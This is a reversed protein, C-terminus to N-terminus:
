PLVGLEDIAQRFRADNNLVENMAEMRENLYEDDVMAGFQQELLDYIKGTLGGLAFRERPLAASTLQVGQVACMLEIALVYRVNTIIKALKRASFGGMSVHDEQNGSSTISDVSSPHALVKNESVLAAATYQAIMFGSNLGRKDKNAGSLEGPLGYSLDDNVLAFIRRESINAIEAMAISLADLPIALPQGHFNGGSVALYGGAGDDVVVPNDTVANMERELVAKAYAFAEKSAGHVQPICRFSYRDQVRFVYSIDTSWLTRLRESTRAVGNHYPEEAAKHYTGRATQARKDPDAYLERSKDAMAIVRASGATARRLNEATLIQGKNERAGNLRADFADLEGLTAELSLAGGADAVKLLHDADYLALVAVGLIFTAGNTLAMAEKAQLDITTFPSSSGPVSFQTVKVRNRARFDPLAEYQELTITRGDEDVMVARCHKLAIARNIGIERILIRAEPEGILVSGVHALPALDGSAGLSGRQPVCPHIRNNLLETLKEVLELRVGSKGIMFSNIRLLIAARLVDVDYPEGVGASHSKIYRRQFEAIQDRDIRVGKLSGVGTNFGYIPPTKDDDLWKEQIYRRVDVIKQLSERNLEVTPYPANNVPRACRVVDGITLSHGNLEITNQSNDM